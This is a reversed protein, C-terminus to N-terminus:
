PIYARVNEQLRNNLVKTMYGLGNFVGDTKCRAIERLWGSYETSNVTNTTLADLAALLEMYPLARLSRYAKYSVTPPEKPITVVDVMNKGYPIPILQIADSFKINGSAFKGIIETCTEDVFNLTEPLATLNRKAPSQPAIGKVMCAIRNLFAVNLHSPIMSPIVYMGVFHAATLRKDMPLPLQTERWWARYMYVLAVPDIGIVAYGSESTMTENDLARFSIDSRPHAHVTVPTLTKWDKPYSTLKSEEIYLYERILPGYFWSSKQWGHRYGLSSMQLSSGTAAGNAQVSSYFMNFDTSAVVVTRLFMVLPHNSPVPKRARIYYDLIRDSNVAFRDSIYRMRQFVTTTTQSTPPTLFLSIM